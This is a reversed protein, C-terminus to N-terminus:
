CRKYLVIEQLEVHPKDKSL